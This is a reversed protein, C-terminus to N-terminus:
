EAFRTGLVERVVAADANSLGYMGRGAEWPRPTGPYENALRRNLAGISGSLVDGGVGLRDALNAFTIHQPAVEALIRLLRGNLESPNHLLGQLAESSSRTPVPPVDPQAAVRSAPREGGLIRLIATLQESTPELNITVTVM